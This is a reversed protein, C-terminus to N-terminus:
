RAWVPLPERAARWAAPIGEAGVHAAVVGGAIACTTDRDGLGSVTLWLAAAYDDLHRAACWLAFPVTDPASLATGNGLIGVAGQVPTTESLTLARRLRSQVAGAPVVAAVRELFARWDPRAPTGRLRWAWAAAVAVAVAGAIGEPHAHTVAASRAAEAAAAEPDDAFYAGLPAVRMAAGNGHSGQGAFLAGAAARWDDGRRLRAILGHMAPGYGRAPDHRGAFERALAAQDVGGHRQLVVVVSLAMETDDTYPWPPPPVTRAAILEEVVDPDVFFRDGFADGISLGELAWLARTLRAEATGLVASM